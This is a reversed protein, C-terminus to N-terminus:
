ADMQVSLSLINSNHALQRGLGGDSLLANTTPTDTTDPFAVAAPRLLSFLIDNNLFTNLRVFDLDM